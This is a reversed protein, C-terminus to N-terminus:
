LPVRRRLRGGGCGLFERALYFDGARRARLPRARCLRRGRTGPRHHQPGAPQRDLIGPDRGGRLRAAEGGSRARAPGSQRSGARSRRRALLSRGGTPRRREARADPRTRPVQGRAPAVAAPRLAPHWRALRPVATVRSRPLACDGSAHEHARAVGRRLRRHVRAPPHYPREALSLGGREGAGPRAAAGPYSRPIGAGLDD